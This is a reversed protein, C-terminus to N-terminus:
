ASLRAGLYQGGPLFVITLIRVRKRNLGGADSTNM